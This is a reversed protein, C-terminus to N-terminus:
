NTRLGPPERNFTELFWERYEGVADPNARAWEARERAFENPRATFIFADLHGAEDSYVLEDLPGYPDAGFVTRALMWARACREVIARELDYETLGVAEPLWEELRGMRDMLHLHAYTMQVSLGERSRPDYEVWATDGQIRYGTWLYPETVVPSSVVLFTPDDRINNQERVFWEHVEVMEEYDAHLRVGSYIVVPRPDPLRPGPGVCAGASFCFAAVATTIAHRGGLFSLVGPSPCRRFRSM